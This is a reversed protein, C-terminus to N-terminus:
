LENTVEGVIKKYFIIGGCFFCTHRTSTQNFIEIGLVKRSCEKVLVGVSYKKKIKLDEATKPYCKIKKIESGYVSVFADMNPNREVIIGDLKASKRKIREITNMFTKVKQESPLMGKTKVRFKHPEGDYEFWEELKSEDFLATIVEEVVIPTGMLRHWRVANKILKRKVEINLNKDYGPADFRYALHDLITQKLGDIHNLNLVSKMENIIKENRVDIIEAARCIDKDEKLNPPLIEKLKFDDIKYM